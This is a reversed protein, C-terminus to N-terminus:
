SNYNAPKTSTFNSLADELIDTTRSLVFSLSGRAKQDTKSIYLQCKDPEERLQAVHDFVHESLLRPPLWSNVVIIPINLEKALSRFVKYRHIPDGEGYYDKELQGNSDHIVILGFPVRRSAIIEKLMDTNFFVDAGWFDIGLEFVDGAAKTLIPWDQDVIGGSLIRKLSRRMCYAMLKEAIDVPHSLSTLLSKNMSDGRRVGRSYKLVLMLSLPIALNPRVSVHSLSGLKFLNMKFYLFSSTDAISDPATHIANRLARKHKNDTDVLVRNDCDEKLRCFFPKVTNGINYDLHLPPLEQEKACEDVVVPPVIQRFFDNFKKELQKHSMFNYIQDSFFIQSIEKPLNRVQGCTTDGVYLCIESPKYKLVTTVIQQLTIESEVNDVIIFVRRKRICSLDDIEQVGGPSFQEHVEMVKCRLQTFFYGYIHGRPAVVVYHTCGVENAIYSAMGFATVVDRQVFAHWGSSEAYGKDICYREVRRCVEQALLENM